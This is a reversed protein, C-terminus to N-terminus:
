EENPPVVADYAELDGAIRSALSLAELAFPAVWLSQGVVRMGRSTRAAVEAVSPLSEIGARIATLDFITTLTPNQLARLRDVLELFTERHEAYLRFRHDFLGVKSTSLRVREPLIGKMARRFPQRAYGDALFLHVPLSLIFDVVRRDLMPFSVALGHRAALVSYYTCRSPIHHDAFARVRDAPRNSSLVPTLRGHEVQAAMAPALFRIAGHQKDMVGRGTRRAAALLPTALRGRVERMVSVQDVKARASLERVLTPLRGARLAALYLNAGNYTAGEDGGVGSLLLDAGFAAADAMIQDDSGGVISGPWDSDQTLGPMFPVDRIVRYTIDPEQDLVAAIMPREDLDAPGDAESGIGLAILANGALRAHRAALVTISSSDLGGTLHCAVPRAQPMRVSVADEILDRLRAAAQQPTGRWQGVQAADPRYARHVRPPADDGARIRLSHGAELYRIEAYGSDAGSFYTQIVKRALAVHDLASAAIGSGHLGKPLSAFALYRGAKWSWALPRAGIFDRGLWLERRQRDWLAVGFDGDLRDPFDRGHRAVAHLLDAEPEGIPRDLRADAAIIWGDRDVLPAAAGSFDLVLLGAPGDLRTALTPHLGPPTMAAAMRSLSSQAASGGDLQVIGAILRM